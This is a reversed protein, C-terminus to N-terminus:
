YLQTWSTYICSVLEDSRFYIFDTVVRPHVTVLPFLKEKLPLPVEISKLIEFNCLILTNNKRPLKVFVNEGGAVTCTKAYTIYRGEGDRGDGKLFDFSHSKLLKGARGKLRKFYIKGLRYM